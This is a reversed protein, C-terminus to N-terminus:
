LPKNVLAQQMASAIRAGVISSLEEYNPETNQFTLQIAGPTLNVNYTPPESQSSVVMPTTHNVSPNDSPYSNLRFQPIVNRTYPNIEEIFRYPAEHIFQPLQKANGVFGDWTDGADEWLNKAGTVIEGRFGLWKDWVWQSGPIRTINEGVWSGGKDGVLPAILGAAILGPINGIALGIRPLYRNTLSQGVMSGLTSRIEKDQEKGPKMNLINVLNSAHGLISTVNGLQKFLKFTKNANNSHMWAFRSSVDLPSIYYNRIDDIADAGSIANDISNLTESTFDNYKKLKSSFVDSELAKKTDNPIPNNWLKLPKDSWPYPTMIDNLPLGPSIIKSAPNTSNGIVPSPIDLRNNPNLQMSRIANGWRLDLELYNNFASPKQGPNHRLKNEKENERSVM